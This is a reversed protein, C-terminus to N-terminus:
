DGQKMRKLVLDYNSINRYPLANLLNTNSVEVSDLIMKLRLDKSALIAKLLGKNRTSDIVLKRISLQRHDTLWPYEYDLLYNYFFFPISDGPKYTNASDLLIAFVASPSVKEVSVTGIASISDSHFVLQEKQKKDKSSCNSLFVIM